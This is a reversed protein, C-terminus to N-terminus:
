ADLPVKVLSNPSFIVTVNSNYITPDNGGNDRRCQVVISNVGATANMGRTFAISTQGGSIAQNATISNVFFQTGGANGGSANCRTSVAPDSNVWASYNFVLQGAVPLDLNAFAVLDPTEDVTKSGFDYHAIGGAENGTQPAYYYGQVDAIV